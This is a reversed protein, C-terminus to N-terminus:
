YLDIATAPTGDHRVLRDLQAAHKDGLRDQWAAESRRAEAVAAGDSAARYTHSVNRGANTAITATYTMM